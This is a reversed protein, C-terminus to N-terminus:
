LGLIHASFQSVALKKFICILTLGSITPLKFLGRKLFFFLGDPLFYASVDYTFSLM